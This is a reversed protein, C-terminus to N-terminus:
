SRSRSGGGLDRTGRGDDHVGVEVVLTGLVDVEEVKCRILVTGIARKSPIVGLCGGTFSHMHQKLHMNLHQIRRLVNTTERAQCRRRGTPVRYGSDGWWGQM